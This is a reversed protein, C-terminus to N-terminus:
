SEKLKGIINKLEIEEGKWQFVGKFSADFFSDTIRHAKITDNIEQETNGYFTHNLVRNWKNDYFECTTIKLKLKNNSDMNIGTLPQQNSTNMGAVPQNKSSYRNYLYLLTLGALLSSVFGIIFRNTITHINEETM